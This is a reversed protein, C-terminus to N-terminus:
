RQHQKQLAASLREPVQWVACLGHGAGSGAGAAARYRQHPTLAPVLGIDCELLEQELTAYDWQVDDIPINPRGVQWRGVHAMNYVAKLRLPYRQALAELAPSLRGEFQELHHRNGHYGLVIPSHESHQKYGQPPREIHPLLFIHRQYQLYYDREELSGSIIFDASVTEHLVEVDIDSPHVLGILLHPNHQRLTAITRDSAKVIAVDFHELGEWTNLAVEAGQQQLDEALNAFVAAM